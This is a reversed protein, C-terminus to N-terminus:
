NIAECRHRVEGESGTKVGVLSLKQMALVWANFFSAQSQALKGVTSRTRTDTWLVQDSALLGLGHQLNSFYVNDFRKPTTADNFAVVTPDLHVNPCSFRLQQAFTSNITPDQRAGYIRDLFVGCHAFGVTHAGSLIVMEDRSFGKQLFLRTLQDVNMNPQPLNGAVMSAKSVRADKRGKLVPWFPGGVLGVLDRTTIALIDACSVVGPCVKEVAVKARIVADFGDGPLSLNDDSDKEAKNNPTSAILVSADCGSVFCDHFFIRLTGAATVFAERQKQVMVAKIIQEVQPCTKSYYDFSLGAGAANGRSISNSFLLLTYCAWCMLVSARYM